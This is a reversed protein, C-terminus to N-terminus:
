DSHLADDHIAVSTRLICLSNGVPNVMLLEDRTM